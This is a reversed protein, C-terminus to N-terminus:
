KFKSSNASSPPFLQPIICGDLTPHVILGITPLNLTADKQERRFVQSHGAVTDLPTLAITVLFLLVHIICATDTSWRRM